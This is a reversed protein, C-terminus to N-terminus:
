ELVGFPAGDEEFVMNQFLWGSLNFNFDVNGDDFCRIDSIIMGSVWSSDGEIKCKRVLKRGLLPVLDDTSRFPRYTPPPPMEEFTEEFESQSFLNVAEVGNRHWDTAICIKTEKGQLIDTSLIRAPSKYLKTRHTYM